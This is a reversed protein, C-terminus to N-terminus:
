PGGESPLILLHPGIMARADPLQWTADFRPWGPHALDTHIVEIRPVAIVELSGITSVPRATINVQGSCIRAAWSDGFAGGALVVSAGGLFAESSSRPPSEIPPIPPYQDSLRIQREIEFLIVSHDSIPPYVGRRRLDGYKNVFDSSAYGPNWGMVSFLSAFYAKAKRNYEAGYLGLSHLIQPMLSRPDLRRHRDCLTKEAGFYYRVGFLVHDYHHDGIAGEATLALGAIPTQFEIDGKFLNNDFAAIYGAGIRLEDFPYWDTRLSGVFRTPETEIFPVPKSYAIRGVGAFAGFSFRGIYYEAEAGVQFTDVGSRSLYGGAVGVLGLEPNRWFLHGAGGYFDLSGIQSYLGDTQFGITHTVPLSISADFNHGEASEMWGGLYSVKANIDEVAPPDSLISKGPLDSPWDPESACIRGFARIALVACATAVSARPSGSM